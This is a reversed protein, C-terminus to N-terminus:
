SNNFCIDAPEGKASKFNQATPCNISFGYKRGPELRAGFVLQRKGAWNPKGVIEPFADNTHCISMGGTNMDQDFLIRIKTLGPSVYMDGNEPVTKVVKPAAGFAFTSLCCGFLLGSFTSKRM